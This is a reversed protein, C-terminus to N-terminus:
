EAAQRAAAAPPDLGVLACPNLSIMKRIEDESYGLGLCLQIVARFGAVPRPNNIQGLDSGLITRDVGGATILQKLQASTFKKNYTENIFMCFSHEIYAGMGALDKIDSLSADIVFTPHNVLLRKVGRKKAEEFLPWIESVHLHGASLVCDAEAIQDLIPKLEEKLEGTDTVVTLGTPRLMKSKTPLIVHRHEHRLHNASSFTPMWVIRAGLKIGHEVAYPNFGGVTNNLPVGSLLTIHLDPMTEKLLEVVPTVSYYHDKFLVAHMGADQAERIADVHNLSRPMVSPGSHCHLDIAGQMLRDIVKEPVDPYPEIVKPGAHVYNSM